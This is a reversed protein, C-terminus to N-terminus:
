PPLPGDLVILRLPRAPFNWLPTSPFCGLLFFDVLWDESGDLCLFLALLGGVLGVQVELVELSDSVQGM